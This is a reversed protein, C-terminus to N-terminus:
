LTLKVLVILNRYEKAYTVYPSGLIEIGIFITEEANAYLVSDTINGYYVMEIGLGVLCNKIDCCYTSTKFYITEKEIFM